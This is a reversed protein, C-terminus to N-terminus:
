QVGVFFVHQFALCLWILAEYETSDVHQQFSPGGNFSLQSPHNRSKINSGRTRFDPSSAELFHGFRLYWALKSLNASIIKPFALM